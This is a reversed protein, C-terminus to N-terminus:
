TGPSVEIVTRTKFASFLEDSPYYRNKGIMTAGDAYRLSNSDWDVPYPDYVVFYRRDLSYGKVIVYHGEDDDYYRGVLNDAPDGQTKSISGTQILVVAIHGRDLVDTLTRPTSLTPMGSRVGHRQLSARLDDFSTSGDEYPWGIEDRIAEVPFDQGRAWLVAMAVVAPGCNAIGTGWQGKYWDLDSRGVQRSPLPSVFVYVSRRARGSGLSVVTHGPAVARYRQTPGVPSLLKPHGNFSVPGPSFDVLEGPNLTLFRMVAPAAIAPHTTDRLSGGGRAQSGEAAVFVSSAHGPFLLFLPAGIISTAALFVLVLRRGRFRHLITEVLRTTIKEAFL